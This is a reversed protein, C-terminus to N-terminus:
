KFRNLSYPTMDIEAQRGLIMDCVAKGTGTSLTLGLMGHGTTVILNKLGDVWDIVPLDDYTMPRLSTWEEILPHGM